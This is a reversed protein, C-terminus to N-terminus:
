LLSDKTDDGGRRGGKGRGRVQFVSQRVCARVARVSTRVFARARACQCVRVRARARVCVCVNSDCVCM